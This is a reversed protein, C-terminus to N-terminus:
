DLDILANLVNEADIVALEADDALSVMDDKEKPKANVVNSTAVVLSERKAVLDNRAEKLAQKTATMAELARGADNNGMVVTERLRPIETRGFSEPNAKKRDLADKRNPDKASPQLM